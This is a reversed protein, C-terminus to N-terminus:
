QRRFRPARAEHAKNGLVPEPHGLRHTDLQRIVNANEEVSPEQNTSTPEEQIASTFALPEHKPEDTTTTPAPTSAPETSTPLPPSYISELTHTPMHDPAHDEWRQTAQNWYSM